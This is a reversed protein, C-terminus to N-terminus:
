WWAAVSVVITAAVSLVVAAVRQWVAVPSVVVTIVVLVFTSLFPVSAVVVVRQFAVTM